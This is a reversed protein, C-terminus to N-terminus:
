SQIPYLEALLAEAVANMETHRIGYMVALLAEAV